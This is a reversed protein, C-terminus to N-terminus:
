GAVGALYSAIRGTPNRDLRKATMDYLATTDASSHRMAIQVDHIPMGTALAATAFSRRLGHPTIDGKICARAALTRLLRAICARDMRRGERNLLVPGIDRGDVVRRLVKMVQPPIPVVAYKDGKGIFRLVDQGQQETISTVDLSCAEGVRLGMMGLLAVVLHATPSHEEAAKLLQAFEFPNLWTRRQRDRDVKPRKVKTAPNRGPLLDEDDCYRYFTCVTGFRRSVTAQALVRGDARPRHQLDNLYAQLAPRDIRLIDLQQEECWAAFQKLDERYDRFTTGDYQLLFTWVARHSAPMAALDGRTPIAVTSM